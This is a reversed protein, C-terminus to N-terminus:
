EDGEIVIEECDEDLTENMSKIIKKATEKSIKEPKKNVAFNGSADYIKKNQRLLNKAMAAQKAKITREDRFFAVAYEVAFALGGENKREYQKILVQAEEEIEKEQKETMLNGQLCEVICGLIKLLTKVSQADKRSEMMEIMVPFDKLCAEAHGSIKGPLELVENRSKIFQMQWKQFEEETM